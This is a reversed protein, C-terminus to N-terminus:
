DAPGGVKTALDRLPVRALPDRGREACFARNVLALAEDARGADFVDAGAPLRKRFNLPCWTLEADGASGRLADPAITGAPYALPLGQSRCVLPRAEYIACRGDADLMACGEPSPEWPGRRALARAIVEAEVPSVTLEVQCCAACGAGCALDAGRRAAAEFFADVKAVLADYAELADM